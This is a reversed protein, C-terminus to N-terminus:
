FHLSVSIHHAAKERLQSFAMSSDLLSNRGKKSRSNQGYLKFQMGTTFFGTVAYGYDLNIVFPCTREDPLPLQNVRNIHMSDGSLKVKFSDNLDWQISESEEKSYAGAWSNGALLLLALSLILNRKM